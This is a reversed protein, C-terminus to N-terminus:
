RRCQEAVSELVGLATRDWSLGAARQRAAEGLRERREPDTLVREIARELHDPGDALLGSVDADIVDVHGAIRTAVAPTGCAAAETITMGWGEDSSASAVLWASRYREVLDDDSVHGDFRVFADAQLQHV